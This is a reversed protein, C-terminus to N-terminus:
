GESLYTDPNDADRWRFIAMLLLAWAVADLLSFLIGSVMFVVGIQAADLDGRSVAAMTGANVFAGILAVLVFISLSIVTFLSVNPHKRWRAAALIIGVIWAIFAPGQVACSRFLYGAIGELNTDSMDM